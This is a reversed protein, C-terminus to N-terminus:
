KIELFAQSLDPYKERRIVESILERFKLEFYEFDEDKYLPIRGRDLYYNLVQLTGEMNRYALSYHAPSFHDNFKVIVDKVKEPEAGAAIYLEKIWDRLTNINDIELKDYEGNIIEKRIEPAYGDNSLISGFFYKLNSKNNFSYNNKKNRLSKFAGPEVLADVIKAIWKRREHVYNDVQPIRERTSYLKRNAKENREVVIDYIRGWSVDEPLDYEVLYIEQLIQELSYSKEEM